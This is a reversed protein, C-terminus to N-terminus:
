ANWQCSGGGPCLEGDRLGTPERRQSSHDGFPAGYAAVLAQAPSGTAGAPPGAINPAAIGKLSETPVCWRRLRAAWGGLQHAAPRLSSGQGTPVGYAAIVARALSGTGRAPPGARQPSCNGRLREM